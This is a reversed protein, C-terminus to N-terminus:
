GGMAAELAAAKEPDFWWTDVIARAYPPKIEPKGFKDWYAMTHTGKSWQPVWIHLSRLARDLASVAVAHEEPSQAAVIAELLADIAPNAVGSLNLTGPAEAAAASFLNT